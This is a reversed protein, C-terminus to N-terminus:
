HEQDLYVAPVRLIRRCGVRPTFRFTSLTEISPMAAPTPDSRSIVLAALSPLLTPPSARSGAQFRLDGEGLLAMM